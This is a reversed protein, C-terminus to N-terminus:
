ARRPSRLEAPLSFTLSEQSLVVPQVDTFGHGALRRLLGTVLHEPVSAGSSVGITQAGALPIRGM